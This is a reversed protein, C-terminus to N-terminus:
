SFSLEVSVLVAGGLLFRRTLVESIFELVLFKDRLLSVSRNRVAQIRESIPLTWLEMFFYIRIYNGNL